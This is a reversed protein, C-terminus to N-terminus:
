WASADRFVTSPRVARSQACAPPAGFITASSLAAASLFYGCITVDIVQVCWSEDGVSCPRGDPLPVLLLGEADVDGVLVRVALGYRELKWQAERPLVRILFRVEVVVIRGYGVNVILHLERNVGRVLVFGM